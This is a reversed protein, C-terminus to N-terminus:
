DEGTKVRGISEEAMDRMEEPSGLAEKAKRRARFREAARPDPLRNEQLRRSKEEIRGKVDREIAVWHVGYVADEGQVGFYNRLVQFEDGSLEKEWFGREECLEKVRLVEAGLIDRMRQEHVVRIERDLGENGTEKVKYGLVGWMANGENKVKTIGRVTDEVRARIRSVRSEISEEGEGETSREEDHLQSARSYIQSIKHFQAKGDIGNAFCDRFWKRAIGEDAKGITFVVGENAKRIVKAERKWAVV